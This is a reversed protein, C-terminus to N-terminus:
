GIKQKKQLLKDRHEMEEESIHNISESVKQYYSSLKLYFAAINAYLKGINEETQAMQDIAKNYNKEQIINTFLKERIKHTIDLVLTTQIGPKEFKNKLSEISRAHKFSEEVMYQFVGKASDLRSIGKVKNYFAALDEEVQIILDLVEKEM